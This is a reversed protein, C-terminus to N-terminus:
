YVMTMTSSGKLTMASLYLQPTWNYTVAVTVKNSVTAGSGNTYTPNQGSDLWTVSYTLKSTDLWTAGDSKTLRPLIANTYVDSATTASKTPSHSANYESLRNGGHVSAWRAGERALSAVENSVLMGWGVTVAGYTLLFFMSLVIAYEALTAGRRDPRRPRQLM